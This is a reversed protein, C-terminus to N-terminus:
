HISMHAFLDILRYTKDDGKLAFPEGNRHHFATAHDFTNVHSDLLLKRIQKEVGHILVKYGEIRAMVDEDDSPNSALAALITTLRALRDFLPKRDVRNVDSMSWGRVCAADNDVSWVVYCIDNALLVTHERVGWATPAQFRWRDQLDVQAAYRCSHCSTKEPQMDSPM